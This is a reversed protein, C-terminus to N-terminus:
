RRYLIKLVLEYEERLIQQLFYYNSKMKIGKVLKRRILIFHPRLAVHMVDENIEKWDEEM